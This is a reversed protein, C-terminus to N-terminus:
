RGAVGPKAALVLAMVAWNTGAASIFQNDGHPFGSSVFPVSPITRSKVEWSGDELQTRLLFAVGRQYAPAEVALQGSQDLAFLSQGTAYSDSELSDLQAWGGDARQRALLGKAMSAMQEPRWGAWSLGLLQFVREENTRAVSHALWDAARQTRRAVEDPWQAAAYIRMARVAMATASVPYYELPPRLGPPIWNGTAGQREMMDRVCLLLQKNIPYHNVSLGWIDYGGGIVLAQPDTAEAWTFRFGNLDNKVSDIAEQLAALNVAFGKEKAMGFVILGMGQGHCSHCGGANELFIHSSKALLPLSKGVAARIEEQGVPLMMGHWAVGCLVIAGGVMWKKM